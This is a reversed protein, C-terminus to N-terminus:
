KVERVQVDEAPEFCHLSAALLDRFEILDDVKKRESPNLSSLM